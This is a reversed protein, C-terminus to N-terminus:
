QVDWTTIKVSQGPYRELYFLVNVRVPEGAQDSGIIAPEPTLAEREALEVDGSARQGPRIQDQAVVAQNVQRKRVNV